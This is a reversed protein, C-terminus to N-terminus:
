SNLRVGSKADFLHCIHAPIHAAINQGIKGTYDKAAKVAVLAGGAQVTAM